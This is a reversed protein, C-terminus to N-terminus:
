VVHTQSRRKKLRVGCANCLTRPGAPGTRWQPTSTARCNTCVARKVHVAPGGGEAAGSEDDRQRKGAQSGMVQAVPQDFLGGRVEVGPEAKGEQAGNGGGTREVRGGAGDGTGQRGHGVTVAQQGCPVQGCPVQGRWDVQDGVAGGGRESCVLMRRPGAASGSQNLPAAATIGARAPMQRQQMPQQQGRQEPVVHRPEMQLLQQHQPWAPIASLSGALPLRSFGSPPHSCTPSPSRGAESPVFLPLQLDLPLQPHASSGPVSPACLPSRRSDEGHGVPGCQQQLQQQQQSNLSLSHEPDPLPANTGDWLRQSTVAHTGGRDRADAAVSRYRVVSYDSYPARGPAAMSGSLPSPQPCVQAPSIHQSPPAQSHVVTRSVLQQHMSPSTQPSTFNPSIRLKPVPRRPSTGGVRLPSGVLGAHTVRGPWAAARPGAAAKSCLAPQRQHRREPSTFFTQKEHSQPQLLQLLQDLNQQQQQQQRQQQQQQPYHLQDIELTAQGEPGVSRDRPNGGISASQSLADGEPNQCAQPSSRLPSFLSLPFATPTKHYVPPSGLWASPDNGTLPSYSSSSYLSADHHLFPSYPKNLVQSLTPTEVEGNPGLLARVPHVPTPPLSFVPRLPQASSASGPDHSLPHPQTPRSAHHSSHRADQLSHIEPQDQIHPLTHPVCSLLSQSLATGTVPATQPPHPPPATASRPAKIHSVLSLFATADVAPSPDAAAPKSGFLTRGSQCPFGRQCGWSSVGPGLRSSVPPPRTQQAQSDHPAPLAATLPQCTTQQQAM